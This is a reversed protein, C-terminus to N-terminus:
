LDDVAPALMAAHWVLARRIGCFGMEELLEEATRSYRLAPKARMGFAANCDFLELLPTLAENAM